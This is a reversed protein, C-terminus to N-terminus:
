KGKQLSSYILYFFIGFVAGWIINAYLPLKSHCSTPYTLFCFIFVFQLILFVAVALIASFSTKLFTPKFNM